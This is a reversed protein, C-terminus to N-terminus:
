KEDLKADSYIELLRASYKKDVQTVMDQISRESLLLVSPGSRTWMVMKKDEFFVQVHEIGPRSIFYQRLRNACAECAMGDIQVEYKMLPVAMQLLANKSGEQETTPSKYWSRPFPALGTKYYMQVLPQLAWGSVADGGNLQLSGPASQNYVSVVEPSLTLILAIAMTLATRSSLRYKYTTYAMLLFSLTGFIPRLPTLVSFGACGISMANLVLQIVCCSSSLLGVTIASIYSSWAPSPKSQSTAAHSDTSERSEHSELKSM